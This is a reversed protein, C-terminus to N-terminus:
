QHVVLQVFYLIEQQVRDEFVEFHERQMGTVPRGTRSDTVTANVLVLDVNVRLTQDLANTLDQSHAVFAILMLASAALAWRKWRM